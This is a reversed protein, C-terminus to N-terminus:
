KCDIWYDRKARRSINFTKAIEEFFDEGFEMVLQRAPLTRLLERM